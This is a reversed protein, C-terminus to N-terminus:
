LLELKEDSSITVSHKLLIAKLKKENTPTMTHIIHIGDEEYKIEDVMSLEYLYSLCNTQDYSLMTNRKILNEQFFGKVEDRVQKKSNPNLASVQIAGPYNSTLMLQDVKDTVLDMKNLVVITPIGKVGVEKLVGRTTRIHDDMFPHSADVVHLLLDAEKLVELTSHFSAVLGHPIKRIFGVTDSILIDPKTVGKLIRTTSDLTAFLKNEVLLDEDTLMNMLTSKGANTYGVIGVQIFNKRHKGQTKREKRTKTLSRELLQVKKRLLTRDINVQKEGMGRSAGIGGKERDLHAWMGVLRPLMYKLQALEVQTKSEATQAHQAFIELILQTRDWVMCDLKSELYKGQQPSLESDFILLDVELQSISEKIEDLKGSGVYSRKEIAPLSQMTKGIVNLDLTTALFELEDFSDQAEFLDESKIHVTVLYTKTRAM